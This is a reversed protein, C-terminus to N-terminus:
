KKNKSKNLFDDFGMVTGRKPLVKMPKKKKKVPKKGTGGPGLLAFTDMGSPVSDPTQLFQGPSTPQAAPLGVMDERVAGKEPKAFTDSIKKKINSLGEEYDRSAQKSFIGLTGSIISSIGNVVAMNRAAAKKAFAADGTDPINSFLGGVISSVALYFKKLPSEAVRDKYSVPLKIKCEAESRSRSLCLPLYIEPKIQLGQFQGLNFDKATYYNRIEKEKEDAIQDVQSLFKEIEKQSELQGDLESIIYLKIWERCANLYNLQYDESGSEDKRATFASREEVQSSDFLKTNIVETMFVSNKQVLVQYLKYYDGTNKVEDGLLEPLLALRMADLLNNIIIKKTSIKEKKKTVEPDETKVEGKKQSLADKIEKVLEKILDGLGLDLYVKEVQNVKEEVEVDSEEDLAAGLQEIAEQQIANTKEQITVECNKLVRDLTNKLKEDIEASNLSFIKHIKLVREIVKMMTNVDKEFEVDSASDKTKKIKATISKTRVKQNKIFRDVFEINEKKTLHRFIEKIYDDNSDIDSLELLNLGKTMGEFSSLRSEKKFDGGVKEKIIKVADKKRTESDASKEEDATEEPEPGLDETEEGATDGTSTEEPELSVEDQDEGSGLDEPKPEIPLPEDEGGTEDSQSDDEVKDVITIKSTVKNTAVDYKGPLVEYKGNKIGDLLTEAFDRKTMINKSTNDTVLPILYVHAMAVMFDLAYRNLCISFEGKDYLEIKSSYKHYDKTIDLFTKTEADFQAFSIPKRKVTDETEGETSAEESKKKSENVKKIDIKDIIKISGDERVKATGLVLKYEVGDYKKGTLLSEIEPYPDNLRDLKRSIDSTEFIPFLLQQPMSYARNIVNSDMIFNFRYITPDDTKYFAVISNFNKIKRQAGKPYIGEDTSEQGYLVPEEDIVENAEFVPRFKFNERIYRLHLNYEM